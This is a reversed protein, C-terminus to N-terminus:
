ITFLREISIKNGGIQGNASLSSSFPKEWVCVFDSPANYESAFVKHGLSKIERLWNWFKEYDFLEGYSTTGYYPIDCYIISNAPIILESYMGAHFEVGKILPVQKLTNRRAEAYYDRVTGIKTNTKGAYGGFWKGSYNSNIGVWGVLEKPFLDKNDRIQNNFERSVTLPPIWENQLAQWMAILYGNLDNGIRLGAVKDMSGCGGVFPEVYYQNPLRDKLIIPLIDKALRAKSGMYKM